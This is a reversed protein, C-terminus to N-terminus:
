MILHTIMQCSCTCPLALQLSLRASAASANKSRCNTTNNTRKLFIKVGELKAVFRQYPVICGSSMTGHQTAALMANCQVVSDYSDILMHASLILVFMM